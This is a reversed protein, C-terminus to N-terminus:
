GGSRGEGKGDPMRSRCSFLLSYLTDKSVIINHGGVFFFRVAKVTDLCIAVDYEYGAEYEKM